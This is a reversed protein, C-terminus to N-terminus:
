MAGSATSAPGIANMSSPSWIVRSTRLRRRSTASSSASSSRRLTPQSGSGGFYVRPTSPLYAFSTFDAATPATVLQRPM